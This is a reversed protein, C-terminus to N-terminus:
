ITAKGKILLMLYITGTALLGQALTSELMRITMKVRLTQEGGGPDGPVPRTACSALNFRHPYVAIASTILEMLLLEACHANRCLCQFLDSAAALAAFCVITHHQLAPPPAGQLPRADSEPAAADVGYGLM